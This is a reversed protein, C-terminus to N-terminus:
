LEFCAPEDLPASVFIVASADTDRNGFAADVLESRRLLRVQFVEVPAHEGSQVGLFKLLESVDRVLDEVIFASLRRSTTAVLTVAPSYRNMHNRTCAHSRTRLDDEALRNGTCEGVSLPLANVGSPHARNDAKKGPVDRM